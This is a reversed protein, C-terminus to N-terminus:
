NTLQNKAAEIQKTLRVVELALIAAMARSTSYGIGVTVDLVYSTLKEPTDIGKARLVHIGTSCDVNAAPAHMTHLEALTKM